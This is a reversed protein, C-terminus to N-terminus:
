YSLIWLFIPISHGNFYNPDIENYKLPSYMEVFNEYPKAFRPNDQLVPVENEDEPDESEVVSHGDTSKEIVELATEQKKESVWAEFMVTKETEGFSAFIENREKEIELQEKLVLLEDEWKASVEQLEVVASEEKRLM